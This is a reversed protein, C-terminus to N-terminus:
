CATKPTHVYHRAYICRGTSRATCTGETGYMCGLCGSCHAAQLQLAILPVPEPPGQHGMGTLFVNAEQMEAHFIHGLRTSSSKHKSNYEEADCSMQSPPVSAIECAASQAGHGLHVGPPVKFCSLFSDLNKPSVCAQSNHRAFKRSTLAKAGAKSVAERKFPGTRDEQMPRQM